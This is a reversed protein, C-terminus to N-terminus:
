VDCSILYGHDWSYSSAWVLQTLRAASGANPDVPLAVQNVHQVNQFYAHQLANKASVRLNPDYCLM